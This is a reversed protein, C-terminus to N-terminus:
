SEVRGVLRVYHALKVREVLGLRIMKGLTVVVSTRSRGKALVDLPTPNEWDASMVELLQQRLEGRRMTIPRTRPM